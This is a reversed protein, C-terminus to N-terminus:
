LPESGCLISLKRLLISSLKILISSFEFLISLGGLLNKGGNMERELMEAFLFLAHAPAKGLCFLGWTVKSDRLRM